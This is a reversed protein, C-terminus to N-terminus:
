AASKCNRGGFGRKAQIIWLLKQAVPSVSAFYRASPNFVICAVRHIPVGYLHHLEELFPYLTDPIWLELPYAYEARFGLAHEIVKGWLAVKGIVASDPSSFATDAPRIVAPLTAMRKFELLEETRVAYIGCTCNENPPDHSLDAPPILHGGLAEAARRRLAFEEPDMTQHACLHCTAIRPQRHPWETADNLSLLSPLFPRGDWHALRCRWTRWGVAYGAVDPIRM